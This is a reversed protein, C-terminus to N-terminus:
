RERFALPLDGDAGRSLTLQCAIKGLQLLLVGAELLVQPKKAVEHRGARRRRPQAHGVHLDLAYPIRPLVAVPKQDALAAVPALIKTPPNLQHEPQLATALGGLLLDLSGM